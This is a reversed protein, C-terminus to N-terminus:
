NLVLDDGHGTSVALAADFLDGDQASTGNM